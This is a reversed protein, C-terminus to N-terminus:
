QKILKQIAIGQSTEVELFYVGAVSHELNLLFNNSNSSELVLVVNGLVDLVKVNKAIEGADLNVQFSGKSPNPYVSLLNDLNADKIGTTKEVITNVVTNTIVAENFDFYIAATNEISTGVPLEGNQSIAFAVYGQSAAEDVDKPPLQINNFTFVLENNNEITMIFDHSAQINRLTHIDLNSDLEDRVIVRTANANGENQFRIHYSHDNDDVTIDGNPYVAKDNPDWSGQSLEYTYASNNNPTVDGALPFIFAEDIIPTGIALTNPVDFNIRIQQCTGPQLNSFNFRLIHNTQDIVDPYINSWSPPGAYTLEASYHWEAYGSMPVTGDNCIYIYSWRNHGPITSPAVNTIHGISISLDQVPAPPSLFFDVSVNQNTSDLTVSYNANPCLVSLGNANYGNIDFFYTGAPASISYAGNADTYDYIWLWPGGATATLDVFASLPYDTSDYICNGNVDVYVNGSITYCDNSPVTFSQSFTCGNADSLILTYVGPSPNQINSSTSGDSWLFSYPASGGYPYVQIFSNNGAPNNSSCNAYYENAQIGLPQGAQIVFSYYGSCGNADEVLIQYTGVCLSDFNPSTQFSLGNDLSYSYPAVGGSVVTQATGLCLNNSQCTFGYEVIADVILGNTSDQEVVATITSSCQNQDYVQITYVGSCLNSFVTQYGTQTLNGPSVIFTYPGATGTAVATISGDCTSSCASVANATAFATIPNTNNVVSVQASGTCGNADTVTLYVTPDINTLVFVQQPNAVTSNGFDYWSWSFTYPATGGSVTSYLDVLAGNCSANLTQYSAAVNLGGGNLNITQVDESTCGLNTTGEVQIVHPGASLQYGTVFQSNGAFVGDIYWAWTVIPNNPNGQAGFLNLIQPGNCSGQSNYTFSVQNANSTVILDQTSTISVGNASVVHIITYTGPLYYWHTPNQLTSTTNDGFDWYYSAGFTPSTTSSDTFQYEWATCNDVLLDVGFNATFQAHAKPLVLFSISLFLIFKITKM